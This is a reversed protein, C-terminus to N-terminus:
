TALPRRPRAITFLRPYLCADSANSKKSMDNRIILFHSSSGGDVASRWRRLLYFERGYTAHRPRPVSPLMAAPLISRNQRCSLSAGKVAWDNSRTAGGRGSM